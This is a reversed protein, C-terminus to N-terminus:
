RNEDPIDLGARRLNAVNRSIFHEPTNWKRTEERMTEPFDPKLERLAAIDAKADEARGLAGYITILLARTWYYGPMNIKRAEALAQEYQDNYYYDWAIPFHYWTPYAPSMAIAKRMIAVGRARQSPDEQNAYTVFIGAWALTDASNPNLAIARNAAVNFADIEHRFFHAAALSMYALQSRPDLEVARQAASIARGLPDPQSNFGQSYEEVYMRALSAWAEAYRPDLRVARELCDRVKLHVAPTIVRWYAYSHLVCEYAGLSTTGKGASQEFTSQFIAGHTDGIASVVRETIDDQVGFVKANKLSREYSEAWLHAGTNADLLQVNVRVEDGRRQVSGEVVYRANLERGVQRIDVARGKYAFTSNRAIVYLNRFRSLETILQETIGDAFFDQSSDSSMNNFPLVAIAPGTPM